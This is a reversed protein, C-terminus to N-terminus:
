DDPEWLPGPEPLADAGNGAASSSSGEPQFVREDNRDDSTSPKGDGSAESSEGDDSTSSSAAEKSGEESGQGGGAVENEKESVLRDFIVRVAASAAQSDLSPYKEDVENQASEILDDVQDAVSPHEAKWKEWFQENRSQRTQNEIPEVAGKVTKGVEEAITKTLTESLSGVIKEMDAKTITDDDDLSDLVGGPTGKSPNSASNGKLQNLVEDLKGELEAVRQQTKQLGKDM